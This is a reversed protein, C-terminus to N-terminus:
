KSGKKPPRGVKRTHLKMGLLLRIQNDYSHGSKKCAKKLRERVQRSVAIVVLSEGKRQTNSM